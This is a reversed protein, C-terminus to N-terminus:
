DGKRVIVEDQIIQALTCCTTCGFVAASGHSSVSGGAASRAAPRNRAAAANRCGFDPLVFPVNREGM